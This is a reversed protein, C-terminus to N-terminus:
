LKKTQNKTLVVVKNISAQKVRDLFIGMENYHDTKTGSAYSKRTTEETRGMIKSTMAVDDHRIHYDDKAARFKRSLIKSLSPDIYRLVKYFAYFTQGSM